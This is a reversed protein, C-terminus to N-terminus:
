PLYEAEQQKLVNMATKRHLRLEIGLASAGRGISYLNSTENKSVFGLKELVRGSAPNDEYYGADIYPISFHSFSEAVLSNAAETIYGKGWYPKGIWYGIEKDGVKNEFLGMVGMINGDHTIMYDHEIGRQWNAYQRMIWFEASLSLFPHPLSATMNVIEKENLLKAMTSADDLTPQRLILRDTTLVERM